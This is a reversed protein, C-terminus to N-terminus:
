SILYANICGGRCGISMLLVMTRIPRLTASSETNTTVENYSFTLFVCFVDLTSKSDKKTTVSSLFVSHFILWSSKIPLFLGDWSSLPM